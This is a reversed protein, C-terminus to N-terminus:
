PLFDSRSPLLSVYFFMRAHARGVSPEWEISFQSRFGFM